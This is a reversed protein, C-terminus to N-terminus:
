KSTAEREIADEMDALSVGSVRPRVSGFLTMLDITEPQMEVVGDERLHLVVRDGTQLNLSKRIKNPITIQGKTTITSVSM